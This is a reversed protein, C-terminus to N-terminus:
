MFKMQLVKALNREQSESSIIILFYPFHGSETKLDGIDTDAFQENGQFLHISPIPLGPHSLDSSRQGWPHTQLLPLILLCATYSIVTGLLTYLSVVM